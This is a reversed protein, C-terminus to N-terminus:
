RYDFGAAARGRATAASLGWVLGLLLYFHRWHDTDIVLGEAAAGTFAALVLVLYPQWPTRVFVARLGVLLTTLVLILYVIGGIWGYSVFANLYVNHPDGGYLVGFQLPGLGLPHDLLATLGEIQRDFRGGDGADYSQLLSAREEFMVGVTEFSLLAALLALAAIAAVLTFAAVRARFRWDTATLFMLAVTVAASIMFHAWAGRSFSLFLASLLILSAILSVVGFGRRLFRDMLFLIPLVLFPGFVNPDKFTSQMRGGTEEFGPLVRFYVGLGILAAVVAALLYASRLVALRRAIDEGLFCAFLIATGALYFSVAMFTIADPDHLVPVLAALGALNWVLLLVILPLLRRDLKLGAALAVLALLGVLAEYPAPEIYVFFSSFVAVFLLGLLLRQVIQGYQVSTAVAAAPHSASM